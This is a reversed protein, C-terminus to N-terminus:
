PGRLFVHRANLLSVVVQLGLDKDYHLNTLFLPICQINVKYPNYEKIGEQSGVTIQDGHVRCTVTCGTNAM